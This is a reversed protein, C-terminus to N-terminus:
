IDSKGDTWGDMPEDMHRDMWRDGVMDWSGPMMQDYNKNCVNLIIVDGPMTKMKKLNQTKPRNPTFPCFIAWFSFYCNQRDMWRNGVMDWSSPMMQDYNKNCMNLIIIDGPMHKM